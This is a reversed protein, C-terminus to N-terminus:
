RRPNVKGFIVAREDFKGAKPDEGLIKIPKESMVEEVVEVSTKQRRNALVSRSALEPYQPLNMIWARFFHFKFGVLPKTMYDAIMDETPCYKVNIIGRKILDTVYFYKINFHRTRKGSSTRGNMELKMSSTNDRNVITKSEFGQAKIFEHSWVIKEVVDDIGILEAETSSRSNVKQKTSVSTIIGRGLSFTGGTHSKMDDHVGFAADVHWYEENQDNAELTTVDKYTKHM